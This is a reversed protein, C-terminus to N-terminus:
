RNAYLVQATSLIEKKRYPNTLAEKEVVDVRRRFLAELEMQMQAMDFSSVAADPQFSILVDVDSHPNFDERLISGFLALETLNWRQCFQVIKKRPIDQGPIATMM